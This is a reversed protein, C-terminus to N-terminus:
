LVIEGVVDFELISVECFFSRSPCSGLRKEKPPGKKRNEQRDLFTVRNLLWSHGKELHAADAKKMAKEEECIHRTNCEKEETRM